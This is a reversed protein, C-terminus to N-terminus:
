EMPAVSVPPRPPLALIEEKRWTRNRRAEDVMPSLDGLPALELRVSNRVLLAVDVIRSRIILLVWLLYKIGQRANPTGHRHEVTAFILQHEATSQHLVKLCVLLYVQDVVPLYLVVFVHVNYPAIVRPLVNKFWHVLDHTSTALEAPRLWRCMQMERM